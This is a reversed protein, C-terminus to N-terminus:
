ARCVFLRTLESSPLAFRRGAADARVGCDWALGIIPRLRPDGWQMYLALAFTPIFAAVIMPRLPWGYAFRLTGFVAAIGVGIGVSLILVERQASLIYYLYLASEPNVADALPRLSAIAPEAYTVLVGLVFSVVLMWGLPYKAPLVAGLHDAMPLFGVRLGDLFLTIGFIAAVLGGLVQGVNDVEAAFFVGISFVLVVTIPVVALIQDFVQRMYYQVMHPQSKYWAKISQRVSRVVEM